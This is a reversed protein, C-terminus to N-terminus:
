IRWNNNQNGKIPIIMISSGSPVPTGPNSYVRGYKCFNGTIKVKKPMIKKIEQRFIRIKDKRM